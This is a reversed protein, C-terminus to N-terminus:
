ESKSKSNEPSYWSLAKLYAALAEKSIRVKEDNRVRSNQNRDTNVDAQFPPLFHSSFGRYPSTRIV